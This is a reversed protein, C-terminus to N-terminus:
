QKFLPLHIQLDLSCLLLNSYDETRFVAKWENGDKMRINNYGWCIDLKTFYKAKKLKNILESIFPLPYQNKITIANLKWYDQVPHLCGDKKKM